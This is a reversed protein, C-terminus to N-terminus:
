LGEMYEIRDEKIMSGIAEGSYDEISSDRKQVVYKADVNNVAERAKEIRKRMGTEDIKQYPIRGRADAKALDIMRGLYQIDSVMDIVKGSKMTNNSSHPVNHIRMHERSAERAAKTYGSSLKLNERVFKEAIDVGVSAHKKTDRIKGIDHVLAMLLAHPDNERIKQMEEVVMLTHQWLNGEKHYKGTSGADTDKMLELNKDIKELAGVM